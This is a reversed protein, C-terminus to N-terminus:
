RNQPQQQRKAAVLIEGYMWLKFHRGLWQASSYIHIVIFNRFDCRINDIHGDLKGDLPYTYQTIHVPKFETPFNPMSARIITGIKSIFNIFSAPLKEYGQTLDVAKAETYINKSNQFHTATASSATALADVFINPQVPSNKKSNIM